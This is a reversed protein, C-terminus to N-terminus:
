HCAGSGSDSFTLGSVPIFRWDYGHRLLTLKLVGATQGDAAERTGDLRDVLPYPENGGTGVVFQRIGREPEVAGAPSMPAYRQYNHDHGSLVVEANQEYLVRWIADSTGDDGYRGASFRPHHWYALVCDRPHTALDLRLWTEQPSGADMRINSNLAYLRWAGLTYAYYGSAREGALAGFYDFYPGAGPQRYDHNGPTPRTRAKHRGWTPEYFSAYDAAAGDPYANDGTTYVVDPDIEDLLRATREAGLNFSAIDGAGAIVPESGSGPPPSPFPSPLPEVEVGVVLRLSRRQTQVTGIHRGARAPASMNAAFSGRRTPRPREVEGGLSVTIREGPEFGSGRLRIAEGPSTSLPRWRVRQGTSSAVEGVNARDPQHELRFSSIVRRKGGLSVLRHLGRPSAPIRIRATFRGRQGASRIALRRRGTGVTVRRGPPFGRGIVQVVTGPAGAAPRLMVQTHAAALSDGAPLAALAVAGLAILRLRRRGLREASGAAAPRM